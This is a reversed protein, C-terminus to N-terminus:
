ADISGHAYEGKEPLLRDITKIATEIVVVEGRAGNARWFTALKQGIAELVVSELSPNDVVAADGNVCMVEQFGDREVLWSVKPNVRIERVKRSEPSTVAYIYGPAGRLMGAVMWRSRPAGNEDVTSLIAGRSADITRELADVLLTSSEM